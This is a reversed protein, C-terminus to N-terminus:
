ATQALDLAPSGANAANTEGLAIRRAAPLGQGLIYHIASYPHEGTVNRSVFEVAIGAAACAELYAADIYLKGGLGSLYSDAEYKRCLGILFEHKHGGAEEDVVVRTKIGLADRIIGIFTMNLDVLRDSRKEYADLTQALLAQEASKGFLNRITAAHKHRWPECESVFADRILQRSSGLVPVSLLLDAGGTGRLKARSQWERRVFQLNTAIVFLDVSAMKYFFSLNPLYNPQHFALRM